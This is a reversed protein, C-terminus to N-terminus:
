LERYHCPPGTGTGALNHGLDEGGAALGPVAMLWLRWGQWASHSWASPTETTSAGEAETAAGDADAIDRSESMDSHGGWQSYDESSRRNWSRSGGSPERAEYHPAVRKMAQSARMYAEFKRTIYDNMSESSKRRTGKFYAALLDTVENVRPKGLAQRLHDMLLTVGGRFAVWGATTGGRSAERGGNAGPSFPPGRHIEEGVDAVTGMVSSSRRIPCFQKGGWEMHSHGGQDTLRDHQSDRLGDWEDKELKM